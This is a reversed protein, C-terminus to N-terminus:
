AKVQALVEGTTVEVESAGPLDAMNEKIWALAKQNSAKANAAVQSTSTAGAIVSSVIPQAVLWALALEAVTHGRENAWADWAEVRAGDREIIHAAQAPDLHNAFRTDSPLAQGRRYKGTLMGSALPFFPLLTMGNREVAPVLDDIAEQRLLNLRNQATALRTLGKEDAIKARQDLDDPQDEGAQFRGM